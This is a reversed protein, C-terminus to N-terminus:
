TVPVIIGMSGARVTATGAVGGRAFRVQLTGDASPRCSFEIVALTDTNTLDIGTTATIVDFARLTGVTVTGLASPIRIAAQIAETMTPGNLSLALGGLVNNVQFRVHFQGLYRRGSTLAAGLGTADALTTTANTVDGNISVVQVQSAQLTALTSMLNLVDGMPLPNDARYTM